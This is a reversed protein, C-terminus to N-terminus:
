VKAPAPPMESGAEHAAGRLLGICLPVFAAISLVGGVMSPGAILAPLGFMVGPGILLCAAGSLALLVGAVRFPAGGRYLALGFILSPIGLIFYSFQDFYGLTSEPYIQLLNYLLATAAPQLEPSELLNVLQPVIVLQSLYSFLALITYIPIFALGIAAWLPTNRKLYAYLGAFVMTNLLSFLVANAYNFTYYFPHRERAFALAGEYTSIGGYAANMLIMGALWGVLSVLDILVIVGLTKNRM